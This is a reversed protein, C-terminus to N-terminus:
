TLSPGESKADIAMRTRSTATERKLIAARKEKASQLSVHLASCASSIQHLSIERNGTWMEGSIFRDYIRKAWAKPDPNSGINMRAFAAKAKQLAESGEPGTTGVERKLPQASTGGRNQPPRDQILNLVDAPTPMKSSTRAWRACATLAISIEVDKLAQAWIFIGDTTFPKAGYANTMASLQETLRVLDGKNM